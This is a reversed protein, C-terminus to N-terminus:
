SNKKSSIQQVSIGGPPNNAYDVCKNYYVHDYSFRNSLGPRNRHYIAGVIGLVSWGIKQEPPTTRIVVVKTANQKVAEKVPLPDSWGGDMLMKNDVEVKARTVFPLASSAQLCDLYNDATPALYVPDGSEFDTAVIRVYRKESAALVADVNLPYNAQSYEQLYQLNVYGESSLSNFANIFKYDSSLEKLVAGVDKPQKALYYALCVAGGSVGFCIDFPNFDKSLFADLVGATFVSRLAGGQIM